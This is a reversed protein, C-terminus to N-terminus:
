ASSWPRDYNGARPPTWSAFLPEAIVRPAQRSRARRSRGPRSPAARRVRQTWAEEGAVGVVHLRRRAGGVCRRPGSAVQRVDRNVRRISASPRVCASTGALSHGRELPEPARRLGGSRARPVRRIRLSIRSRLDREAYRDHVVIREAGRRQAHWWAAMEADTASPHESLARSERDELVRWQGRGDPVVPLEMM